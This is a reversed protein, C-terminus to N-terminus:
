ACTNWNNDACVLSHKAVAHMAFHFDVDFRTECRPFREFRAREDGRAVHPRVLFDTGDFGALAGIQHNEACIWEIVNRVDALRLSDYFAADEIIARRKPLANIKLRLVAGDARASSAPLSRRQRSLLRSPCRFKGM